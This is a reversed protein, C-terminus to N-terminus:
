QTRSIFYNHYYRATQHLNKMISFDRIKRYISHPMCRVNNPIVNRAIPDPPIVEKGIIESHLNQVIKQVERRVHQWILAPPLFGSQITPNHESQQHLVFEVAIEMTQFTHYAAILSDIYPLQEETLVPSNAALISEYRLLFNM